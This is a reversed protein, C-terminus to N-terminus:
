PARPPQGGERYTQERARSYSKPPPPTPMNGRQTSQILIQLADSEGTNTPLWPPQPCAPTGSTGCVFSATNLNNLGPVGGNQAFKSSLLEIYQIIEDTTIRVPPGGLTDWNKITVVFGPRSVIITGKGNVLTGV